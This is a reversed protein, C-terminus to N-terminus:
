ARRRMVSATTVGIKPCVDDLVCRDCRPNRANCIRRGHHILRHSFNIWERQPIKKMLDEEVREPTEQKTLGLRHSLRLVHTDVVLGSAIGFATGLVVNATKRAVGPLSLLQEMTKPVQGGFQKQLLQCAAKINKAKNRFFGTSRIMEELDSPRAGAFKAATPYKAFLKPTVINVRVDTCQASLITAILLQLPGEHNLACTADPYERELRALIEQVRAKSAKVPTRRGGLQKKRYLSDWVVPTM